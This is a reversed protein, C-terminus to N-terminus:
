LLFSGNLIYLQRVVPIHISQTKAFTVCRKHTAPGSAAYFACGAVKKTKEIDPDIVAV